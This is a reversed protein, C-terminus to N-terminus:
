SKTLWKNRHKRNTCFDKGLACFVHSQYNQINTFLFFFLNHLLIQVGFKFVFYERHCLNEHRYFWLSKRRRVDVLVDFSEKSIPVQCKKEIVWFICVYKFGLFHRRHDRTNIKRAELISATEHYRLSEYSIYITSTSKRCTNLARVGGSAISSTARKNSYVGGNRIVGNAAQAWGKKLSRRCGPATKGFPRANGGSNLKVSCSNRILGDNFETNIGFYICVDSFALLSSCGASDVLAAAPGLPLELSLLTTAVVVVGDVM